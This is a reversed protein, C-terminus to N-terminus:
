SQPNKRGRHLNRRGNKGEANRFLAASVEAGDIHDIRLGQFKGSSVKEHIFAHYDEFVNPKDMSLSILGNITFFRRYNLQNESEQWHTLTYHQRSLLELMKTSNSNIATCMDDIMTKFSNDTEYIAQFRERSNSWGFGHFAQDSKFEENAIGQGIFYSGELIKNEDLLDHFSEGSVPLNFDYYRISLGGNEWKLQIEGDHVAMDCSKGLIPVILKHQFAPHEWDIDFYGSYASLKGKELVDMLWPNGPHFAMHNPVIDQIWGIGASQLNNFIHEFQENTGIEPNFKLPNTVDYGHSSGPVAGSFRVQM